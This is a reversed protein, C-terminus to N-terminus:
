TKGAYRRIAARTSPGFNGDIAGSYVGASKMIRQLERRFQVDWANANTTFEKVALDLGKRLAAAMYEAGKQQNRAVGEGLSYCRAVWYDADAEDLEAARVWLRFAEEYDKQVGLAYYFNYALNYHGWKNNLRSAERYLTNAGALDKPTGQSHQLMYGLRVMVNSNDEAPNREIDFLHYERYIRFAEEYKQEDYLADARERRAEMEDIEVQSPARSIANSAQQSSSEAEREQLLKLKSVAISNFLGQPYTQIYLMIEDPDDSNRVANWMEIEATRSAAPDDAGDRSAVNGGGQSEDLRRRLERLEKLLQSTQDLGVDGSSSSDAVAAVKLFIEKGPLSGYTFPQQRNNTQEMVSDRVKRFLFNIELNPQELYNLLATTFPSNRGRGDDAVTGEKAAFAVLTGAVPEVGALGRGISRTSNTMQMSAAFPNNRCADLMVLKLGKAGSVAETVLDLPIAEYSIALDTKLMADTPILYNQKNVEMGHGAFFVIAMDAGHAAQTFEGLARRMSDFSLDEEKRVEFGLRELSATIDAADNRPNPLKGAHEYDSNGIVLAVKKAAHAAGAATITFLIVAIVRLFNTMM